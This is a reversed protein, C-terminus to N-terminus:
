PLKNQGASGSKGPGHFRKHLRHTHHVECGPVNCTIPEPANDYGLWQMHRWPRRGWILDDIWLLPKIFLARLPIPTQKLMWVALTHWWASRKNYPCVCVCVICNTWLGKGALRHKYCSEVDIAWKEVGNVVVKDGFSISYSPCNRACKMCLRCFDEVGIDVPADVALPLDTTVVALHLRSGYLEHILLGHRGLEGLGANIALPIPNLEKRSHSHARAAYGMERIYAALMFTPVITRKNGMRYEIDSIRSNCALYRDYDSVFGLCIAFEHPLHIPDGAKLGEAPSSRARHSYVYAQDLRCIGVLDAGFFRAVEKIAAANTDPDAAPIRDSNVTGEPATRILHQLSNRADGEGGGFSRRFADAGRRTEQSKRLREGLEGRKVRPRPTNREDIQQRPGVIRYTRPMQESGTPM